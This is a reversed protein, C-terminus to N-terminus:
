WAGLIVVWAWYVAVLFGVFVAGLIGGGVWAIITGARRAGSERTVPENMVPGWERYDSGAM